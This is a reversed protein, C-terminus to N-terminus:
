HLGVIANESIPTDRVREDGMEKWLKPNALYVM